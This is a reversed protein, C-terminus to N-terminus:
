DRTSAQGTKVGCTPHIRALLGGARDRGVSPDPLHESYEDESEDGRASAQSTRSVTIQISSGARM